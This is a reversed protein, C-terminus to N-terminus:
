ITSLEASSTKHIIKRTIILRKIFFRCTSFSNEGALFFTVSFIKLVMRFKTTAIQKTSIQLISLASIKKNREEIRVMRPTANKACHDCMELM